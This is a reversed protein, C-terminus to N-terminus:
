GRCTKMLGPIPQIAVAPMAGSYGTVIADVLRLSIAHQERQSSAVVSMLNGTWRV